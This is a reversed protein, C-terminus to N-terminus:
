ASTFNREVRASPNFTRAFSSGHLRHHLFLETAVVLLTIISLTGVIVFRRREKQDLPRRRWRASSARRLRRANFLLWLNLLAGLTAFSLLPLRIAASHFLVAGQALSISAGGLLLVLGNATVFFLCVAEIAAVALLGLGLFVQKKNPKGARSEVGPLDSDALVDKSVM